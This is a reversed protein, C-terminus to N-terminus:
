AMRKAVADSIAEIEQEGVKEMHDWFNASDLKSYDVERYESIASTKLWEGLAAKSKPEIVRNLVILYLYQGVSMGQSRKSVIGDVIGQFGVEREIAEVAAISGWELAAIEPMAEAEGSFLMDKIKDATGLYKQWVIRPKGNVRQNEALYYYTRGKIRKKLIYAMYVIYTM